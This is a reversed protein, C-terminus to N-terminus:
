SLPRLAYCLGSGTNYNINLSGLFQNWPISEVLWHAVRAPIYFLTTTGARLAPFRNRPEKFSKCIQASFLQDKM